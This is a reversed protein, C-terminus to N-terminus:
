YFERILPCTIDVDYCCDGHDRCEVDCKCNNPVGLCDSGADVCCATYGAAYCSGQASPEREMPCLDLKDPCCDDYEHCTQDCYCESDHTEVECVGQWCCARYGAAACSGVAPCTVNIDSCCNRHIYCHSHCSCTPPSGFCDEETCCSEYGAAVCSGPTDRDIVKCQLTLLYLIHFIYQHQSVQATSEM